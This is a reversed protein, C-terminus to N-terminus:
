TTSASMIKRVAVIYEYLVKHIPYMNATYSWNEIMLAIGSDLYGLRMDPMIGIQEMDALRQVTEHAACLFSGVIRLETGRVGRMVPSQALISLSELSRNSVDTIASGFHPGRSTVVDRLQEIIYRVIAFVFDNPEVSGHGVPQVTHQSNSMAAVTTITSSCTTTTTSLAVASEQDYKSEHQAETTMMQEMMAHSAVIKSDDEMAIGEEVQVAQMTAHSSTVGATAATDNDHQTMLANMLDETEANDSGADETAGAHVVAAVSSSSSSSSPAVVVPASKPVKATVAKKTLKGTAGPTRSVHKKTPTTTPVDSADM